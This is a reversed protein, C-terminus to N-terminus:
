HTQISVQINDKVSLNALSEQASLIRQKLETQKVEFEQSFQKADKDFSIRRSTIQVREEISSPGKLEVMLGFRDLIQPRLEGEDPNMTGVLVFRAEHQHSLGDREVYNRGSASVDLLIDILHDPLLNVEDVYLM